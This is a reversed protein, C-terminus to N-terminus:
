PPFDPFNGAPISSGHELKKGHKGTSDLSKGADERYSGALDPPRFSRGPNARRRLKMSGSQLQEVMILPAHQETQFDKISEYISLANHAVM